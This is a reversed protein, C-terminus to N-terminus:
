VVLEGFVRQCHERTFLRMYRHKESTSCSDLYTLWESKEVESASQADVGQHTALRKFLMALSLTDHHLLVEHMFSQLQLQPVMVPLARVLLRDGGAWTLSFGVQALLDFCAELGVGGECPMNVSVPMYLPRSPFPRPTQQLQQMLYDQSLQQIDLVYIQQARVMLAHTQGIALWQGWEGQKAVSAEASQPVKQIPLTEEQVPVAHNLADEIASRLADHVMRPDHFRLEHKTPHVNVDVAQADIELYLVCAPYRGPHLREGYAQKIAHNLLKDNVMRKNVYIWLRDQQSRAYEILTVWGSLRLTGITVEIPIAADMFAKGMIKQVRQAKTQATLGKPLTFINQGNHYFEISIEPASLSFYRVLKDIVLFETRESKLFRKRVPANFFLDEVCVTTGQSRACEQLSVEDGTMTLQMAHAQELPRSQLTLRSVSAISALAEGRFGMSYISSLDSLTSIKSTAHPMVALPLDAELIGEGNDSVTIANLGGFSVEVVLHTAKADLANELLEKVVSAPREVVEGAAIQNAVLTSLQHIKVGM